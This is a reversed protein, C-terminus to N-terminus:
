WGIRYAVRIATQKLANKSWQEYRFGLDINQKQSLRFLFGPGISFAFLNRSPNTFNSTTEIVDGGEVELYLGTSVGYRLGAKLPIFKSPAQPGFAGILSSKYNFTSYGGTFSLGIKGAVPIEIKASAGYGFNYVSNSPLGMEPGISFATRPYEQAKATLAIGSTILMMLLMKKM